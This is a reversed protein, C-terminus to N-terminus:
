KKSLLFVVGNGPRYALVDQYERHLFHGVLVKDKGDMFDFGGIGRSVSPCMDGGEGYVATFPEPIGPGSGNSRAIFFAGRGPSFFVLDAKGDEDFQIPVVQDSVNRLNFGSVGTTFSKLAIDFGGDGNSRLVVARGLGPTYLLLDDRRDGDYDFSIVTDQASKFDFTAFGGQGPTDPLQGYVQVFGGQGNGQMVAVGGSGPRYIFLDSNGDANFDFPVIKDLPNLLDIGGMGNAFRAISKFQSSRRDFRLIFIAGGGPRYALLDAQEDFSHRLVMIRDDPHLLNYGGIGNESKFDRNFVGPKNRDSNATYAVGVGPRYLLLDDHRDGDYDVPVVQDRPDRLDYGAIGVGRVHGSGTIGIPKLRGDAGLKLITVAGLGPRYAMIEDLGDNDYDLAIIRDENALLDFGGIGFVGKEPSSTLAVRFPDRTSVNCNMGMADPAPPTGVCRWQEKGQHKLLDVFRDDTDLKETKTCGKPCPNVDGYPITKWDSWRDGCDDCSSLGTYRAVQFSSCKCQEIGEVGKSSAEEYGTFNDRSVQNFCKCVGCALSPGGSMLFICGAAVVGLIKFGVNVSM